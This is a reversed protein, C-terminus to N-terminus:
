HGDKSVRLLHRVRPKGRIDFRNAAIRLQLEPNTKRERQRLYDLWSATHFTEIFVDADTADEYVEWNYIDNRLLETSLRRLTDLFADRDAPRVRYEVMVEVPGSDPRVDATLVPAPWHM